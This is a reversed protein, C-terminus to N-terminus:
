HIPQQIKSIVKCIGCRTLKSPDHLLVQQTINSFMRYYGRLSACIGVGPNQESTRNPTIKYKGHPM